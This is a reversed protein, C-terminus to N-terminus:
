HRGAYLAHFNCLSAKKKRPINPTSPIDSDEEVSIENVNEFKVETGVEYQFDDSEILGAKTDFDLSEEWVDDNCTPSTCEGKDVKTKSPSDLTDPAKGISSPVVQATGLKQRAATFIGPVTDTETRESDNVLCTDNETIKMCETCTSASSSSDKGLVKLCTTSIKRPIPTQSILFEHKVLQDKEEEPCGLCPRGQGFLDKCVETFEDACELIGTKVTQNWIRCLFKGARIDLLLVLGIYPEGSIIIDFDSRMVVLFDGVTVSTLSLSSLIAKAEELGLEFGAIDNDMTTWTTDIEM